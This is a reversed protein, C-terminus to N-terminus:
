LTTIGLSMQIRNIKNKILKYLVTYVTYIKIDSM